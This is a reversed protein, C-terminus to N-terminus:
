QSSVSVITAPRWTRNADWDHRRRHGQHRFWPSFGLQWSGITKTAHGTTESGFPNSTSLGNCGEPNPGVPLQDHRLGGARIVVLAELHEELLEELGEERKKGAQAARNSNVSISQNSM